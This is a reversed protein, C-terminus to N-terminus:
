VLSNAVKMILETKGYKFASDMEIAEMGNELTVLGAKLLTPLERRKKEM